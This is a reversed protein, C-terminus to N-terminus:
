IKVPVCIEMLASKLLIEDTAFSNLQPIKKVFIKNIYCFNLKAKAFYNRQKTFLLFIQKVLQVIKNM